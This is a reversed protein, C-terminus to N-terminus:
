GGAPMSNLYMESRLSNQDPETGLTWSIRGRFRLPRLVRHAMHEECRCHTVLVVPIRWVSPLARLEERLQGRLGRDLASLPEDLLLAAPNCALARALAVRQREGGSLQAPFRERLHFIGFRRLLDEARGTEGQKTMSQVGYLINKWVTLHEFLAYSQFVIGMKRRGAPLNLKKDSAFLERGNLNIRGTEPRQLGAMIELVTTKGTGSPGSLVLLQGPAVSFRAELVFDPLRKTFEVELM